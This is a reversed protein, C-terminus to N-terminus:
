LHCKISTKQLFQITNLNLYAKLIWLVTSLDFFIYIIFAMFPQYYFIFIMYLTLHRESQAKVSDEGQAKREVGIDLDLLGL